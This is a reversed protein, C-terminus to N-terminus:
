SGLYYINLTYSGELVGEDIRTLVLDEVDIFDIDEVSKIYSNVEGYTGRLDVKAKVVQLGQENSSVYEGGSSMTDYDIAIKIDRVLASKELEILLSPVHLEWNDEKQKEVVEDFLERTKNAAEESKEYDNELQSVDLALASVENNLRLREDDLQRVVKSKVSFDKKTGKLDVSPPLFFFYIIVAVVSLLSVVIALANKLNILVLM